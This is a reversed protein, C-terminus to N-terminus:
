PTLVPVAPRTPLRCMAGYKPSPNPPQRTARDSTQPGDTPLQRAANEPITESAANPDGERNRDSQSHDYSRSSGSVVPAAPSAGIDGSRSPGASAATAGVEPRTPSPTSCCAATSSPGARARRWRHVGEGAPGRSCRRHEARCRRREAHARDRDGRRADVV